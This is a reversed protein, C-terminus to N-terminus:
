QQILITIKEYNNCVNINNNIQFLITNGQNVLICYLHDIETFRCGYIKLYFFLSELNTQKLSEIGM